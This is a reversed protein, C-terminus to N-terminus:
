FRYQMGLAIQSIDAGRAPSAAAWNDYRASADNRLYAGIVYLFTQRDFDYAFGGGAMWGTLGDTQCDAGGTLKCTGKEGRTFEWATRWPGAIKWEWGVAWTVHQYEQFKVGAAQGTENYKLRSIDGSFRHNGLKYAGSVRVATDLSHAGAAALFPSSSSGNGTGNKLSTAVNSSGGFYDYHREHELAAYFPGAEYKVGMSWLKTNLSGAGGLIDTKDAVGPDNRTEDPSYQLGAQFGAFEPTQYQITNTAREHFRANRSNGVGIHSLVNSASLFNGSTIGFIDEVQGYEKYITDMHGLKVTGFAGSLGLFSNRNSFTADENGTDIEIAQEIQWIGKLSGALKREGRFGLYSNQSDIAFRSGPTTIPATGGLTGSTAVLTSVHTGPQTPEKSQAWIFQPYLKGYIQVTGITDNGFVIQAQAAPAMFLGGVAVALATKRMREEEWFFHEKIRFQSRSDPVIAAVSGVQRLATL